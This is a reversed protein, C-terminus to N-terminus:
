AGLSLKEAGLSLTEAGLSFKGSAGSLTEHRLSFSM